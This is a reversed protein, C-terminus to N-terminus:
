INRWKSVLNKFENFVNQYNNIFTKDNFHDNYEIDLNTYRPDKIFNQIKKSLDEPDNLDFEEVYRKLDDDLINKSYFIKKKFFLSELLPLSSRGILTPMVVAHCNKYISIMEKDNIFGLIKVNENLNEKKIVKNIYDLNGKDPGCFIFGIKNYNKKLLNKMVDLLYKHNKHPWFQAPYFFWKFEKDLKFNNFIELYNLKQNKNFIFPLNPTLNQIKIKENDCSYFENLDKKNRETFVFIKFAKEVAFRIIKNQYEYGGSLFEKFNYYKKIETNWINIIFQTGDCYLSYFSPQAFVILDINNKKLFKQFPNQIKDTEIFKNKKILECVNFLIRKFFTKKFYIIELNELLLSSKIKEDSIVCISDNQNIQIKKILNLFGM